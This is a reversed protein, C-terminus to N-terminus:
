KKNQYYKLITITGRRRCTSFGILVTNQVGKKERVLQGISITESLTITYSDVLSIVITGTMVGSEKVFSFYDIARCITFTIFTFRVKCTIAKLWHMVWFKM